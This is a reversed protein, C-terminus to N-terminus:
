ILTISFWSLNDGFVVSTASLASGTHQWSVEVTDSASLEMPFNFSFSRNTGVSWVAGADYMTHVETLGNHIVKIIIGSISDVTPQITLQGQILFLGSKTPVLTSGVLSANTATVKTSNANWIVTQDVGAAAGTLDSAARYVRVKSEPVELEVYGPALATATIKGLVDLTSAYGDVLVGDDNVVITPTPVIVSVDVLGPGASTAVLDGTFNLLTASPDVSVGSDEVAITPTITPINVDVSGPVVSTVAVNGTFNILAVASDITISTDQVTLTSPVVISLPDVLYYFEVVDTLVLSILGTYNVTTTSPLNTYEVGEELKSGNLFMQVAGAQIPVQSLTFVTQGPTTVALTEQVQTATGGSINIDAIGSGPTTVSVGTGTFNLTSAVTIITSGNDQVSVAGGGGGGGAELADLRDRITGYTGSPNIGAESEIAIIADRLRNVVEANVPTVQDTTIPISTSNDLQNPYLSTSM